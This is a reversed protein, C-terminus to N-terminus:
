RLGERFALFSQIEFRTPISPASSSYVQTHALAPILLLFLFFGIRKM